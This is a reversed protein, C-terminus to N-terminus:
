YKYVLILNRRSSLLISKTKEEGFHIGLKNDVFWDRINIYIKDRQKKIETVEIHQFLLWPNDIYLYLNSEVFQIM